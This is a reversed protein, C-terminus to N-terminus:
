RVEVLATAGSEDDTVAVTGAGGRIACRGGREEPEVPGLEVTGSAVSVSRGALPAGEPSLVRWHIWSGERRAAVDVAGPPRLALVVDREIQISPVPLPTAAWGIARLGAPGTATQVANNSACRIEGRADTAGGACDAFRVEVGAVPRAAVDRAIAVWSSGVRHLSLTTAPGGPPLAYRLTLRQRGDGFEARTKLIGRSFAGDSSSPEGLLDGRSDLVRAIARLRAGPVSPEGEVEWVISAPSGTELGVRLEVKPATASGMTVAIGDSGAGGVPPVYRASWIAGDTRAARVKGREAVGHLPTPDLPGGAASWAVCHLGAETRGDAEVRQPWAACHLGPSEPLRLDIKSRRENGAASMSTALAWRSGPPVVVPISFRGEGDARVPGWARGGIEVRTAVGPESRGPLDIAAAVPVRAVGQALPTACLPCRPALAVIGLVEPQPSESPEWTAAFSGPREGRVLPGVKGSSVSLLPPGELALPEGAADTVELQLRVQRDRGKVPAPPDATLVIRGPPPAVAAEVLVAGARLQVKTRGPEPQVRWVGGGEPAIAGGDASPAVEGTVSIRDGDPSLPWPPLALAGDAAGLSLSLAFALIV